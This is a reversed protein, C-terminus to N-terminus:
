FINEPFLVTNINYSISVSIFNRSVMFNRTYVYTHSTWSWGFDLLYGDQKFHRNSGFNNVTSIVNNKNKQKYDNRTMNEINDIIEFSYYEGYM